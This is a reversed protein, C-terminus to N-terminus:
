RSPNEGRYHTLRDQDLEVGLGPARPPLLYGDEVELQHRVVDGEHYLHGCVDSPHDLLRTAFALAASAATGIGLEPMSGVAVRVGAVDCLQALRLAAAPGGAESVYINVMDCARATIARYADAETWVSEDLMIPIPSHATLYASGDLDDPALPQEVSLTGLAALRDIARLARKRDGCAMNFDVRLGVGAGFEDRLAAAAAVVRDVDGDGKIKLARFGRDLYGRAQELVDPVPAISLSMSLEVRDRVPGGLLDVVPVGAEKGQLDLVATEVAAVAAISHRGFSVARRAAAVIASRQALPMGLIAPRILETVERCLGAGNGHWIMALEGLGSAGTSAHVEVIGYESWRAAGLATRLPSVLPVRIPTATVDTIWM